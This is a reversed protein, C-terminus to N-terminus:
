VRKLWPNITAPGDQADMEGAYILLPSKLAILEQVVNSYDIMKDANFAASVASSSMEFVPDKTSNEVNIASYITDLTAQPQTTFYNVVPDEQLDWDVGFIRQDYAFVGGSITEIYDMVKCCVTYATDYDEALGEHCNKRLAAIQPMNSDDLINLSEPIHYMETKQTLGATYPDGVLSAKLNFTGAKVMDRSFYPMYHGAYSEGTMYLDKGQLDPYTEWINTVFTQFEASAEEMNTLLPEGYSFGTGVPQDIYIVTGLNTWSDKSKYM